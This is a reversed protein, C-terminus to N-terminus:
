VYLPGIKSRRMYRLLARKAATRGEAVKGNLARGMGSLLPETNIGAPLGAGAKTGVGLAALCQEAYVAAKNQPVGRVFAHVVIFM